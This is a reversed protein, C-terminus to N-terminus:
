KSKNRVIFIIGLVIAIAGLLCIFNVEENYRVISVVYGFIISTFMFPTLLAYNSSMLLAAAFALLGLTIPTGM